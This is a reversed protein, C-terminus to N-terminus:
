LLRVLRPDQMNLNNSHHNHTRINNHRYKNHDQRSMGVLRSDPLDLNSNCFVLVDLHSLQDIFHNDNRVRQEPLVEM